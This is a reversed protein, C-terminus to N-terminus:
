HKHQRFRVTAGSVQSLYMLGIYIGAFILMWAVPLLLLLVAQFTAPLVSSLVGFALLCLVGALIPMVCMKMSLQM